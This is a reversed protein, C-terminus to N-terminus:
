EGGCAAQDGCTGQALSEMGWEDVKEDPLARELFKSIRRGYSTLNGDKYMQRMEERMVDDVMEPISQSSEPTPTHRTM